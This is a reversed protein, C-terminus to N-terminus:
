IYTRSPRKLNEPLMFNKWLRLYDREILAIM